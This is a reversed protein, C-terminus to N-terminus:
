QAQRTFKAVFDVSVKELWLVSIQLGEVVPIPAAHFAPRDLSDFDVNEAGTLLQTGFSLLDEVIFVCKGTGRVEQFALFSLSSQSTYFCDLNREVEKQAFDVNRVDDLKKRM